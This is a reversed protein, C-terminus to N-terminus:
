LINLLRYPQILAHVGQPLGAQASFGDRKEYADAVLMLIALRLGEPVSDATEGFGASFSIILECPMRSSCAGVPVTITLQAPGHREMMSYNEAPIEREQVGTRLVVSTIRCVPPRPLPVQLVSIPYLYDQTTQNKPTFLKLPTAYQYTKQLFSRGTIVELAETSAAVLRQILADEADSDVRLYAKAEELSILPTQSPHVITLSM